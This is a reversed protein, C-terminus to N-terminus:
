QNMRKETDYWTAILSAKCLKRAKWLNIKTKIQIINTYNNLNNLEASTRWGALLCLKESDVFQLSECKLYNPDIFILRWFTRWNLNNWMGAVGKASQSSPPLLLGSCQQDEFEDINKVDINFKTIDSFM